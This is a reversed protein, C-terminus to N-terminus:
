ELFSNYKTYVIITVKDFLALIMSEIDIKLTSFSGIKKLFLIEYLFILKPSWKKTFVNKELSLKQVMKKELIMGLKQLVTPKQGFFTAKLVWWRHFDM